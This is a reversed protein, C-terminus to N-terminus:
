EGIKAVKAGHADMDGTLVLNGIGKTSQFPSYKQLEHSQLEEIIEPSTYLNKFEILICEGQSSSISIRTAALIQSLKRLSVTVELDM